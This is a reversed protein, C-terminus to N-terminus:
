SESKVKAANYLGRAVAFLPDAALQVKSVPVPFGERISAELKEIFGKPLSTGGSVVVKLPDLINPLKKTDTSSYLKRFQDVVYEILSDYYASIASEIKNKPANLDVGAEKVHQAVNCTENTAKAVQSDIWDGSKAVSFCFIPMGLFSYAINCAGAGWSIGVGTYQENELESYVVALGENMKFIKKYGLDTLVSKIVSSHYVIDFDADVPEAPICYYVIDNEDTSKGMVGRILEKVMIVSEPEQPNLVGKAMPRLCEKHFMTAFKFADDGLIYLIGDIKVFNAGSKKLMTEGFDLASGTIFSSPNVKFFADRVKYYELKDDRKEACVLNGTGCDLGLISYM